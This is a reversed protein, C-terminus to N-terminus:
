EISVPPENEPPLDLFGGRVIGSTLFIHFYM